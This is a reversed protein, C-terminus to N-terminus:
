EKHEIQRKSPGKADRVLHKKSKRTGRGFHKGDGDRSKDANRAMFIYVCVWGVTSLM